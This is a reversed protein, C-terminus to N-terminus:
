PPALTRRRTGDAAPGLPAERRALSEPPWERPMDDHVEFARAGAPLTVWPVRARTFIHADPVIAHPTGLTAVRLFITM